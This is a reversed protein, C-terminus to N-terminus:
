RSTWGECKSFNGVESSVNYSNPHGSEICMRLHVWTDGSELCQSCGSEGDAVKLIQVGELHECRPM